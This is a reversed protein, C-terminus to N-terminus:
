QGGGYTIRSSLAQYGAPGIMAIGDTGGTKKIIVDSDDVPFTITLGDAWDVPHNGPDIYIIQEGSSAGASTLSPQIPNLRRVAACVTVNSGYSTGVSNTAYARVYYLIGSSLGTIASTFAGTTGTETTASNATTPNTTTAWCVGRATITAGGDSTVNGGSTATSSTVGSAETTTVTPATTSDVDGEALPNIYGAVVAYGAPTMHIYDQHSVNPYGLPAEDDYYAEESWDAVGDAYTGNAFGSEALIGSNFTQRNAEYTADVTTTNTVKPGILAIYIKANPCATKIDGCLSALRTLATGATGGMDNHGTWLVIKTNSPYLDYVESIRSVDASLHDITGSSIGVVHIQRKETIDLCVDTGINLGGSSTGMALSDGHVILAGTPQTQGAYDMFYNVVGYLQTDTLVSDWMVLAAIECGAYLMSSIGAAGRGLYCKNATFRKVGVVSGTTMRYRLQAQCGSSCLGEDAASDSPTSPKKYKFAVVEWDTSEGNASISQHNVWQNANSNSKGIYWSDSVAWSAPSSAPTNGTNSDALSVYYIGVDRVRDGTNYTTGAAYATAANPTNSICWDNNPSATIVKVLAVVTHGANWDSDFVDTSSELYQSSAKTFLVSKHGNVRNTKLVGANGAATGFHNGNGSKDQWQTATTLATGDSLDLDDALLYVLPSLTAPDITAM